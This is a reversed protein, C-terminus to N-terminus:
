SKVLAGGRCMLYGLGWIGLAFYAGVFTWIELGPVYSYGSVSPLFILMFGITVSWYASIGFFAAATILSWHKRFALGVLSLIMLPIYVLTDGVGFARNVQVGHEGVEEQGEQLGIDVTFEYNFVSMTQGVLILMISLFLVVVIIWFGFPRKSNSM